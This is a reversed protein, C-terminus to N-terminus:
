MEDNVSKPSSLGAEMFSGVSFTSGAAHSVKTSEDDDSDSGLLADELRMVAQTEAEQRRSPKYPVNPQEELLGITNLLSSEEKQLQELAELLITEKKCMGGHDTDLRELCDLIATEQDQDYIRHPQKSKQLISTDGNQINAGENPTNTTEKKRKKKTLSGTRPRSVSTPSKAKTKKEKTQKGLLQRSLDSGFLVILREQITAVRQILEHEEKHANWLTAAMTQNESTTPTNRLKSQTQQELQHCRVMTIHSALLDLGDQWKGQKSHIHNWQSIDISWQFEQNNQLRKDHLLRLTKPPSFNNGQMTEFAIAAGNRKAIDICGLLCDVYTNDDWSYHKGHHYHILFPQLCNALAFERSISQLHDAVATGSSHNSESKSDDDAAVYCIIRLEFKRATHHFSLGRTKNEINDIARGSTRGNLLVADAECEIASYGQRRIGEFLTEWQSEDRLVIGEKRRLSKVFIPQEM